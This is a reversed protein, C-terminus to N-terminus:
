AVHTKPKELVFRRIITEIAERSLPKTIIDEMGAELCHERDEEFVHATLAIIPALPFPRKAQMLLRTTEIGDIDPLGIDMLILDYKNNAALKIAQQGDDAIDVLCGLKLLMVSAVKQNIPNDEVLLIKARAQKILERSDLNNAAANINLIKPEEQAAPLAFPIQLWFTTGVNEESSVEIKGQMLDILNKTIALGLGAGEFRRSYQSEVQTFRDFIIGIKDAPIGIGTDKITFKLEAKQATKTICEICLDIHGRHTFKIANGLLNVLIQRIRKQDGIILSPVANLYEINLKTPKKDLLHQMTMNIEHILGHLDFEELYLDLKNAEMKSFDLIDNILAVMNRSAQHIIHVYDHQEDTLKTNELLIQAMGQVANMPTRLEHSMSALFHAKALNAAEALKQAQVFETIDTYFGLVGIIEDGNRLPCKYTKAVISEGTVLRITELRTINQGTQIVYQDDRQYDEWRDSWPLQRDNKGIIEDPSQFGSAQAFYLNCGLFVGDIGKWFIATPTHQLIQELFTFNAM